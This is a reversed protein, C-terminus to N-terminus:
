VTPAAKPGKKFSSRKGDFDLSLTGDPEVTFSTRRESPASPQNTILTHAEKVPQRDERFRV